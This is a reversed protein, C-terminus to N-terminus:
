RIMRYEASHDIDQNFGCGQQIRPHKKEAQDDAAKQVNDNQSYRAQKFVVPSALALFQKFEFFGPLFPLVSLFCLFLFLSEEDDEDSLRESSYLVDELEDDDEESFESEEKSNDLGLSVSM